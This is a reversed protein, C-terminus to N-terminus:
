HQQWPKFCGKIKANKGDRRNYGGIRLEEGSEALREKLSFIGVPADESVADEHRLAAMEAEHRIAHEALLEAWAPGFVNPRAIASSKISM